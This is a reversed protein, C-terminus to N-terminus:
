FGWENVDVGYKAQLLEMDRKLNEHIYNREEATLKRKGPRVLGRGIKKVGEPMYTLIKGIRNKKIKRELSSEVHTKNRAGFETPLYDATLGLFGYVKKLLEVPNNKLDQFKLLLISEKPFYESYQELQLYYNSVSILYDSTISEDWKEDKQMFNYHSEIRDFPNRMLYIFKPKIGYQYIRQPVGNESPYKSYGTSAEIVFQHVNSNFDWLEHYESLDLGHGQNESFFEPEKTVPICIEPHNKLYGYLSSTGSKMSGIILVYANEPIKKSM